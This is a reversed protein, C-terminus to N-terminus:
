SHIAQLAQLLTAPDNFQIYIVAWRAETARHALMAASECAWDGELSANLGDAVICESCAWVRDDNGNLEMGILIVLYIQLLHLHLM